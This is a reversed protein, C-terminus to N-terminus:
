RFRVDLSIPTEFTFYLFIPLISNTNAANIPFIKILTRNIYAPVNKVNWANVSVDISSRRIPTSPNFNKPIDNRMTDTPMANTATRSAPSSKRYM